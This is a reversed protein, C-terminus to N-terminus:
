VLKLPPMFGNMYDPKTVNNTFGRLERLPTAMNYAIPTPIAIPDRRNTARVPTPPVTLKDSVIFTEPKKLLSYKTITKQSPEPKQTPTEWAYPEKDAAVFKEAKGLIGSGSGTTGVFTEKNDLSMYKSLTKNKDLLSFPPFAGNTGVTGVFTEKIELSSYQSVPESSLTTDWPYFEKATQM